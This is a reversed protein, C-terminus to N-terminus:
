HTSMIPRPPATETGDPPYVLMGHNQVFYRYLSISPCTYGSGVWWLFRQM